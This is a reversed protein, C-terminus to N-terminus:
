LLLGIDLVNYNWKMHPLLYEAANEARQISTYISAYHYLYTIRPFTADVIVTIIYRQLASDLMLVHWWLARPMPEFLVPIVYTMSLWLQSVPHVKLLM